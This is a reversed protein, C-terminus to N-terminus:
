LYHEIGGASGCAYGNADDAQSIDDIFYTRGVFSRGHEAKQKNYTNNADKLCEQLRAAFYNREIWDPM